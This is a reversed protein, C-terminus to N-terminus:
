QGTARYEAQAKPIAQNLFEDYNQELLLKMDPADKEPADFWGFRSSGNIAPPPPPHLKEFLALGAEHDVINREHMLKEIEGIAEDSVRLDRLTQQGRGWRRDWEAKDESAKRDADAKAREERDADLKAELASLKEYVPNTEDLEPIAKDPNLAKDAELLKRRTKPNNLAAQVFGVIQRSRTLEAEDVEVMPM